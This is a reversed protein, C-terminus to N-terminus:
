FMKKENDELSYTQLIQLSVALITHQTSKYLFSYPFNTAKLLVRRM